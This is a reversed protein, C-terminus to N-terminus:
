ALPESCECIPHVAAVGHLLRQARGQRFGAAIYLAHKPRDLPPCLVSLSMMFLPFAGGLVCHIIESLSGEIRKQAICSSVGKHHEAGVASCM